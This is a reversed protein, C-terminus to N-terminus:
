LLKTNNNIIENITDDNLGDNFKNFRDIIQEFSTQIGKFYEEREESWVVFKHQYFEHHTRSSIYLKESNYRLENNEGSIYGISYNYKIENKIGFETGDQISTYPKTSNNIGFFIVKKLEAKELRKLFLYDQTIEFYDECLTELIQRNITKPFDSYNKEYNRGMKYRVVTKNLLYSHIHEPIKMSFSMSYTRKTHGYLGESSTYKPKNIKITMVKTSKKADEDFYDMELKLNKIEQDEM